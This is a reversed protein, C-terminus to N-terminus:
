LCTEYNILFSGPKYVGGDPQVFGELYKLSKAVLPDDPSPGNRLIGTTILATIGIGAQETYSGNAAQGKSRLFEIGRSVMQDVQPAAQGNAQQASCQASGFLVIALLAFSVSFCKQWVM